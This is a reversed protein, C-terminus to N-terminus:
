DQSVKRYAEPTLAQFTAYFGTVGTSAFHKSSRELNMMYQQDSQYESFVQGHSGYAQLNLYGPAIINEELDVADGGIFSQHGQKGIILGTEQSIVLRDEVLEGNRCIQGNLFTQFPM